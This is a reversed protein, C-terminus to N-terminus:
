GGGRRSRYGALRSFMVALILAGGYFVQEVWGSLGILQLGTIGTALFYVAVFSGWANFRGPRITTAGLFASAFAPLLFTPGITPDASGLLGALVLGDGASIVSAAILTGARLADVRIGSLRAVSRGGGVFYIHRGIPTYNLLYWMAMTLALGYYFALELGLVTHRSFNVLSESIGGVSVNNIALAVGALLTGMGLTVVISDIGLVVIFLANLCGTVVGALLAVVVTWGIPWGRIVNLYGVLVLSVGLVGGVSLDYEGAALAPVLALTLILLVAQLSLLTQINTATLFEQPRLVAFVAVVMAWAAFLGFRNSLEVWNWRRATPGSKTTWTSM